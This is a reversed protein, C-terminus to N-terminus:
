GSVAASTFRREVSLRENDVHVRHEFDGIPRETASGNYGVATCHRQTSKLPPLFSTETMMEGFLHISYRLKVSDCQFLGGFDRTSVMISPFM